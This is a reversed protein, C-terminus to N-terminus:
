QWDNKKSLIDQPNLEVVEGATVYFLKNGLAFFHDRDEGALRQPYHAQWRAALSGDQVNVAYFARIWETGSNGLTWEAGGGPVRNIPNRWPLFSLSPRSDLRCFM